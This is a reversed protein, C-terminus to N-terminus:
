GVGGFYWKALETKTLRYGFGRGPYRRDRGGPIFARLEGSKFARRLAWPTMRVADAAELLTLVEAIREWGPPGSAGEDPPVEPQKKRATM